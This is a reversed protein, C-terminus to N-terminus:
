HRAPGTGALAAFTKETDLLDRFEGPHRAALSALALLEWHLASQGERDHVLLDAAVVAVPRDRWDQRGYLALREWCAACTGEPPVHKLARSGTMTRSAKAQRAMQDDPRVVFRSAAYGAHGRPPEDAMRRGCITHDLGDRWPPKTRLLHTKPTSM